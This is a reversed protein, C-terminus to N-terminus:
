RLWVLPGSPSPVGSPPTLPSLEGAHFMFFRGGAVLYATGDSAYAGWARSPGVLVPAPARPGSDTGAGAQVLWVGSRHGLSGEILASSSDSSWALVDSAVLPDGGSGYPVPRSRNGEWFLAAGPTSGSAPTVILDTAPSVSRLAYGRLVVHARRFGVYDIRVVGARRDTFFTSVGAGGLATVSGCTRLDRTRLGTALNLSTITSGRCGPREAPASAVVVTGGAPWSVRHGRIVAEPRESLGFIRLLSARETGDKSTTVIGVAGPAVSEANVLRLPGPVLPGPTYTGSRLDWRWLRLRNNLGVAAFVLSGTPRWSPSPSAAPGSPLSGFSVFAAFMALLGLTGLILVPRSRRVPDLEVAEPTPERELRGPDANPREPKANAAPASGRFLPAGCDPCVDAATQGQWDCRLCVAPARM